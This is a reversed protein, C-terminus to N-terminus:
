SHILPPLDHPDRILQNGREEIKAAAHELDDLKEKREKEPVNLVSGGIMEERFEGELFIRKMAEHADNVEKQLKLDKIPLAEIKQSFQSIVKTLKKGAERPVHGKGLDTRIERLCAAITTLYEGLCVVQKSRKELTEEKVRVCYTVLGGVVGGVVEAIM